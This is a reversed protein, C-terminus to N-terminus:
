NKYMVLYKWVHRSLDQPTNEDNKLLVWINICATLICQNKNINRGMWLELLLVMLHNRIGRWIRHFFIHYIYLFLDYDVKTNLLHKKCPFISSSDWPTNSILRKINNSCKTYMSVIKQKYLNEFRKYKEVSLIKHWQRQTCNSWYSIIKKTIYWVFVDETLM